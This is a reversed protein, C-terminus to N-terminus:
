GKGLINPITRTKGFYFGFIAITFIAAAFNAGFFNVPVLKRVCGARAL